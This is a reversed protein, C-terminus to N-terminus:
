RAQHPRQGLVLKCRRGDDIWRLGDVNMQGIRKHCELQLNHAFGVLDGVDTSASAKRTERKGNCKGSAIDLQDLALRALASEDLTGLKSGPYLVGLSHARSHLLPWLPNPSMVYHKSTGDGRLRDHELVRGGEQPQPAREHIPTPLPVRLLLPYRRLGCLLKTQPALRDPPDLRVLTHAVVMQVDIYLGPLRWVPKGATRPHSALLRARMLARARVMSSAATATQVGSSPM